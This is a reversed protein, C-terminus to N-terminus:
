KGICFAGFIVDLVDDPATEGSIEGLAQLAEDLDIAMFEPSSGFNAEVRQTAELARRLSDKQHTRTLLAQNPAFRAEGRLARAIAQELEVLGTGTVASTDITGWVGEEAPVGSEEQVLDSKNRVLLVPIEADRARDRIARDESVVGESADIVLLVLAAEQLADSAAAVGLREVEDDTDRLGAMDTLRVPIGEVAIVERLLDRTTGAQPTV